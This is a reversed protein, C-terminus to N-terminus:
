IENDRGQDKEDYYLVEWLWGPACSFGFSSSDQRLYNDGIKGSYHYYYKRIYVCKKKMWSGVFNKDLQKKQWLKWTRVPALYVSLISKIKRLSHRLDKDYLRPKIQNSKIRNKLTASEKGADLYLFSFMLLEEEATEFRSELRKLEKESFLLVSVKEWIYSTEVEDKSLREDYEIVDDLNQWFM